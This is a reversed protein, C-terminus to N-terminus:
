YNCVQARQGLLLASSPAKQFTTGKERGLGHRDRSGREACAYGLGGLGFFEIPLLTALTNLSFFRHTIASLATSEISTRLKLGQGTVLWGLSRPCTLELRM